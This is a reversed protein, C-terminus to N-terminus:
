WWRVWQMLEQSTPAACNRSITVWHYEDILKTLSYKPKGLLEPLDSLRHGSKICIENLEELNNRVKKLFKVYDGASGDMQFKSRMPEDWPILANARFAFLIKATGTPGFTVDSQGKNRSTRKSATRNVLGAYAARVSAFDYDSLDILSKDLPFFQNGIDQFWIRIEESALGHYAIAFQRCGWDNLWKLLAMCHQENSLDLQPKTKKLFQLYSSDYDTMGSYVYCAFALEALKM